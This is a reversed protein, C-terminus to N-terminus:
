EFMAQSWVCWFRKQSPYQILNTYYKYFSYWPGLNVDYWFFHWLHSTWNFVRQLLRQDFLTLPPVNLQFSTPTLASWFTDSTAREISFKNSYASILFHWLHSTWNFVQQLLRQDFLTLVPKSEDLSNDPHRSIIRKIIKKKLQAWTKM